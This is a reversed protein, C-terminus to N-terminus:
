LDSRVEADEMKHAEEPPPTPLSPTQAPQSFCVPQKSQDEM